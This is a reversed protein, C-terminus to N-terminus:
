CCFLTDRPFPLQIVIRLCLDEVLSRPLVRVIGAEDFCPFEVLKIVVVSRIRTRHFTAACLSEGQLLQMLSLLLLKLFLVHLLNCCCLFVLKTHHASIIVVIIHCVDISLESTYGNCVRREIDRMIYAEVSM